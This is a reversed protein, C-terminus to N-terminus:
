YCPLHQVELEEQKPVGNELHHKLDVETQLEKFFKDVKMRHTLENNMELHNGMSTKGLLEAYLNNIKM